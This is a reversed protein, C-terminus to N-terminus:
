GLAKQKRFNVDRLKMEITRWGPKAPDYEGRVEFRCFGNPGKLGVPGAIIFTGRLPTRPQQARYEKLRAQFAISALHLDSGPGLNPMPFRQLISIVWSPHLPVDRTDKVQDSSGETISPQLKPKEHPSFPNFKENRLTAQREFLLELPHSPEGRLRALQRRLM